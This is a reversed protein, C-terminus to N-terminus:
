GAASGPPLATRSLAFLADLGGRAFVRDGLAREEALLAVVPLDHHEQVLRALEVPPDLAQTLVVITPRLAALAEVLEAESAQFRGGGAQVCYWVVDALGALALLHERRRTAIEGLELGETDVLTTLGDPARHRVVSRTVPAGSGTVAVRRGLVANALTSKGVGTIGALLIEGLGADTREFAPLATAWERAAEPEQEWWADFAAGLQVRAALAAEPTGAQGLARLAPRVPAPPRGRAWKVAAGGLAAAGAIPLWIPV